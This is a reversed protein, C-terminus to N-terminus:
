RRATQIETPGYALATEPKVLMGARVRQMGNVVIEQGEQLGSRIVRKGDVFPGLQVAQYAVTNTPTLTLVFKQAQDTGIAREDVLL